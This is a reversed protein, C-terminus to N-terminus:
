HADRSEWQALEALRTWDDPGLKALVRFQGDVDPALVLCSGRPVFEGDVPEEPTSIIGAIVYSHSVLIRNHGDGPFTTVLRDREANPPGIM